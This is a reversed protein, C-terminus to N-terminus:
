DRLVYPEAAALFACVKSIDFRSDTRLHTEADIWVPREGAACYIQPLNNVLNDPSLGGAYGLRVHPPINLTPWNNPLLGAGHSLDYLVDVNPLSTSTLHHILSTNVEDYQFIVHKQNLFKCLSVFKIIGFLCFDHFEAHTNLQIRSFCHSMYPYKTPTPYGGFLGLLIDSVYKGCLHASLRLPNSNVRHDNAAIINEIWELSPYREYGQLSPSFLVGFEVFPFDKQIKMLDSLQTTDDAGTVTVTTIFPKISM